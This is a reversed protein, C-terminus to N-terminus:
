LEGLIDCDTFVQITKYKDRFVKYLNFLPDTYSKVNSENMQEISSCDVDLYTLANKFNDFFEPNKNDIFSNNIMDWVIHDFGSNVAFIIQEKTYNELNM